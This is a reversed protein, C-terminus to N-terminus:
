SESVATVTAVRAGALLSGFRVAANSANEFNRPWVARSHDSRQRPRASRECDQRRGGSRPAVHRPHSSPWAARHGACDGTRPGSAGVQVEDETPRAARRLIGVDDPPPLPHVRRDPKSSEVAWTECVLETDESAPGLADRPLGCISAVSGDRVLHFVKDGLGSCAVLVSYKLGLVAQIAFPARHANAAGQTAVLKRWSDPRRSSRPRCSSASRWGGGAREPRLMPSAPASWPPLM